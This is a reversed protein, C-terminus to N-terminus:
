FQRVSVAAQTVNVANNLGFVKLGAGDPQAQIQLAAQLAAQQLIQMCEQATSNPPLPKTITTGTAGNTVTVTGPIAATGDLFSILIGHGEASGPGPPATQPPAAAGQNQPNNAGSQGFVNYLAQFPAGYTLDVNYPIHCQGNELWGPQYGKNSGWSSIQKRCIFLHTGDVAFGGPVLAGVNGDFDRWEATGVAVEYTNSSQEKQADDAFNCAGEVWKGPFLNNNYQVRCVYLPSDPKPGNGPGGKIADQGPVFPKQAPQWTVSSPGPDYPPPPPTYAPPQPPQPYKLETIRGQGDISSCNPGVWWGHSVDLGVGPDGLKCPPFPQAQAPPYPYPPPYPPNWPPRGGGTAYLVEFPPGQTVEAGGFPIHCSGDSVLKGPQYGYDTGSADVYHVRCSYLPSGDIDRGMQALGYFSGRYDGWRATGYAVEYSRMIQESGGFPVNCNGQVWKGPVISGQVQARCIYMPTGPNPDAGPGGLIAGNSADPTFPSSAQRWTISQGLMGGNQAHMSLSCCCLLFSLILLRDSRLVAPGESSIPAQPARFM